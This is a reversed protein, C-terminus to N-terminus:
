AAGHSRHFVTLDADVGPSVRAEEVQGIRARAEEGVDVRRVAEQRDEHRVGRRAHDDDLQARPRIDIEEVGQIAEQRAVVSPAMPMTRRAVAGVM